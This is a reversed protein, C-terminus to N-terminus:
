KKAGGGAPQEAALREIGLGNLIPPPGDRDAPVLELRVSRAPPVTFSKEVAKRVGGAEKVVDFAELVTEGQLRVDFVRRADPAELECFILTVRLPAAPEPEVPLEVKLPGAIGFAAAFRRKTGEIRVFDPNRGFARCAGEPSGDKLPLKSGWFKPGYRRGALPRGYAVPRPYSFWPTGDPGPRDGPAGFNVHLSKAVRGPVKLRGVGFWNESQSPKLALSTKYNYGCVCSSGGEPVVVLGGAPIMNIWCSARVIPYYYLTPRGALDYFGLSGSRSMLLTACGSYTSCTRPMGPSFRQPEGTIPNAVEIPQGSKLDLAPPLYLREGTIVPACSKLKEIEWLVRGDRADRATAGGGLRNVMPDEMGRSILNQTSLLVGSAACLYTQTRSLKDSEWLVRGTELDLAKLTREPLAGEGKKFLNPYHPRGDILFVRGEAIAIANSDIADAARYVWAPELTKKDLGFVAYNAPYAKSWWEHKLNPRGVTGIIRTETVALYEWVPAEGGEPVAARAEAPPELTALPEGTAPDLRLCKLGTAAYV